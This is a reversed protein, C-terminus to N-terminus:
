ERVTNIYVSTNMHRFLELEWLANIKKKSTNHTLEFAVLLEFFDLKYAQISFGVFETVLFKDKPSSYSNEM